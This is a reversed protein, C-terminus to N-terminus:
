RVNALLFLDSLTQGYSYVFSRADPTTQITGMRQVGTSDAPAVATLEEKRGKELEFRYIVAPLAREGFLYFSRGDAAWRIPVDGKDVGTIARPQGGDAL